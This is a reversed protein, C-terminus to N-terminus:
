FNHSSEDRLANLTECCVMGTLTFGVPGSRLARSVEGSKLRCARVIHDTTESAGFM